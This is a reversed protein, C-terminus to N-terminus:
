AVSVNCSFSFPQCPFILFLHSSPRRQVVAARGHQSGSRPALISRIVNSATSATSSACAWFTLPSRFFICPEQTSSDRVFSPLSTSAFSYRRVILPFTDVSATPLFVV